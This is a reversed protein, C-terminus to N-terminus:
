RSRLVGAQQPQNIYPRVFCIGYNARYSRLHLRHTTLLVHMYYTQLLDIGPRIAYRNIRREDALRETDATRRIRGEQKGNEAVKQDAITCVVIGDGIGNGDSIGIGVNNVRAIDEMLGRLLIKQAPLLFPRLHRLQHRLYSHRATAIIVATNASDDVRTPAETEGKWEIAGVTEEASGSIHIEWEAAKDQNIGFRKLPQNVIGDQM